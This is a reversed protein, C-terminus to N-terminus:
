LPKQISTILSKTQINNNKKFLKIITIYLNKLRNHMSPSLNFFDLEALSVWKIQEIETIQDFNRFDIYPIFNNNNKLKAIYYYTKYIIDNDIHSIVIPDIDYIIKYKDSRISTEESFERIACDINTEDTFGVKKGGKPIEWLIEADSSNQILTRLRKGKDIDMLFAKEFKAKCDSYLKYIEMNTYRNEIPNTSFKHTRYVDIINYCKEPNNLWIRYWMQSYQMSIIDIKEAFTMNNFLYKIYKTDKKNFHGMVFSFFYYTYRKKVLVIEIVNNKETNYRCLATGFSLKTRM